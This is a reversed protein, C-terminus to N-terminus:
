ATGNVYTFLGTTSSLFQEALRMRYVSDLWFDRLMVIDNKLIANTMGLVDQEAITLDKEIQEIVQPPLLDLDIAELFRERMMLVDNIQEDRLPFLLKQQVISDQAFEATLSTQWENVRKLEEHMRDETIEPLVATAAYARLLGELEVSRQWERVPTLASIEWMNGRLEQGLLSPRLFEQALAGEFPVAILGIILLFLTYYLFHKM